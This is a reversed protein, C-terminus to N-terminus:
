KSTRQANDKSGHDVHRHWLQRYCVELDSVFRDADCLPSSLMQQRLKQRLNSLASVDNGARTAKQVYEDQDNALWDDKLGVTTLLSVGVNHAHCAGALTVCPVGMYISECTTTTGAYPFTDLSIDVDGYM